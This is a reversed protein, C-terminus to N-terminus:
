RVSEDYVCGIPSANTVAGARHADANTDSITGRLLVLEGDITVGNGWARGRVHLQRCDGTAQSVGLM